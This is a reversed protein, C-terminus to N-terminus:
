TQEAGSPWRRPPRTTALKTCWAELLRLANYWLANIEVAKGRRPTVVWDGVKADMWTLQYGEAGQSLLGDEPDVRIGFDRVRARSARRHRAADAAACGADGPRGHGARLSRLAHFFWLTADATHYLGEKGRRSVYQSDARRAHLQAFTRLMYGAERLRGTTLTLGELSIMTDRGWDTFWHYGAIVTRADDGAATAVAADEIRGAPRIFSSIRRWCWSPRWGTQAEPSRSGSDVARRRAAGGDLSKARCRRSSDHGLGGDFGGADRQGAVSRRPLYGPSWLHEEARLRALELRYDMRDPITQRGGHVGGSAACAADALTAPRGRCLKMRNAADGYPGHVSRLRCASRPTTRAFNCSPLVKLRVPGEGWGASLDRVGHEARAAGLYRKELVMGALGIAGSRAIGSRSPVGTLHDAVPLQADAAREEGSLLIVNGNPLRIHEALHSLMITGAWHAAAGCHVRRPLPADCAGSVLGRPMVGWAMPWWGNARCSRSRQGGLPDQQGGFALGSSSVATVPGHQNDGNTTAHHSSVKWRNRPILTPTARARRTDSPDCPALVAAAQGPLWWSDEAELDYLRAAEDPNESSWITAWDSDAVPALLPEPVSKLQLDNGLQRGSDIKERRAFFRIVWAAPGVPRRRRTRGFRAQASLESRRAPTRLLDHHLQYVHQTSSANPSISGAALLRRSGTPDPIRNQDERRRDFPFQRLFKSEGKGCWSM